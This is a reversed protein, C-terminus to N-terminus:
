DERPQIRYLGQTRIRLARRDVGIGSRFALQEAMIHREGAVIGVRRAGADGKATRLVEGLEILIKALYVPTVLQAKASSEGVDM